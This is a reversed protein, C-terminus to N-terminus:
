FRWAPPTINRVRLYVEAQGRHHAMHTFTYWLAERALVPQGRFQYAEKDLQESPMTALDKATHAVGVPLCKFVAESHEPSVFVNVDIDITGRARQTCWALALAGGFAHPLQARELAKHLAVIKAPLGSM